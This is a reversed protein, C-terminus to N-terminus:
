DDRNLYKLYINYLVKEDKDSLESDTDHQIYHRKFAVIAADLDRTDYGIMRLANLPDFHEPVDPLDSDPKYGFGKDALKDWPFYKGPDSKRTPALDAHGIFNGTPINYREKMSKLLILLSNIQDDTFYEDGDNDIEIGLSSSNIDNMNGWRGYGAHWARYNEDVMSNVVGNKCILYHASVQGPIFANSLTELSQGCSQQATYHIVVIQPTRVNFNPSPARRQDADLSDKDLTFTRFKKYKKHQTKLNKKFARRAKGGLPYLDSSCSFMLTALVFVLTFFGYKNLKM